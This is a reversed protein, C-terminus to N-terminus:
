NTPEPPLLLSPPEIKSMDIWNPLMDPALSSFDFGKVSRFSAFSAKSRGNAPKSPALGPQPFALLFRELCTLVKTAGFAM